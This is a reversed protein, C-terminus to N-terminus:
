EQKTPQLRGGLHKALFQEATAYFKMANPLKSFGSAEDPFILYEAPNGGARVQAVLRETEERGAQQDMGGQVVLLPRVIRGASFLPSRNKLAEADAEPSGVRKEFLGRTLKFQSPVSAVLSGLNSPGFLDVGCAFEFPTFALAALVAYGGYSAGYIGVRKGDAVGQGVAWNKGDVLDELMKGGWEREGAQMHSKGFGTSGRYNIQLVAYGRNALWQAENHFVWSDRAWPGPHVLIVMPLGRAEVGRPVTLYGHLVLGDRAAFSIVRVEALQSELLGPRSSFLAGLTKTSRDYLQYTLPMNGGQSAVLWRRDQADRSIVSFDVKIGARLTEYDAAVSGDLPEWHERARAYQVAQLQRNTVGTMLGTVDFVPDEALVKRKGSGIEVELLRASNAELGSSVYLSGGGESFGHLAGFGEGVGWRLVRRWVSRTDDRARIETAGDELVALAGRVQMAGDVAWTTVDGVNETDLLVGGHRLNIRYVDFVGRDRLNMGVLIQDPIRPDVAVFKAKVGVFATLDRINKSPLHTQYIHWNQHGDSDKLYLMHEGDAQWMFDLIPMKPDQLVVRDAGEGGASRVWVSMLGEHVGLYGVSKGDPSLRPSFRTAGGFLVEREILPAPEAVGESGWFGALACVLGLVRSVGSFGRALAMCREFTM